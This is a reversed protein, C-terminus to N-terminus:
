MYNSHNTFLSYCQFLVHANPNYDQSLNLQSERLKSIYIQMKIECGKRDKGQM